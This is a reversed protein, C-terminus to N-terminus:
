RGAARPRASAPATGFTAVRPAAAVQRRSLRAWLRAVAPSAAAPDRFALISLPVTWEEGGIPVLAGKAGASVTSDPLWAIGHGAVAMDRLIDSMDSEIVMRAQPLGGAGEIALDVLRAFYVTNSYMLLPLPRTPDGPLAYAERALLSPAIYPRLTDDEIKMSEFRGPEIELPQQATHFGIMLETAGSILGIALDHVNGVTVAASLRLDRSWESWWGPLRSTALAFPVGIRVHDGTGPPLSKLDARADLIDALIRSAMSRFQEGEPTLRTPLCSRDILPVGFWAELQQIRRSFAAQSTHRRAAARTFNRTEAVALFDQLWRIEM